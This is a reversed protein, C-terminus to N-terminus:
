RARSAAPTASMWAPTKSRARGTREPSLAVGALVRGFDADAGLVRTLVEGGIQTRGSDDTEAGDFRAQAVEGWAAFRPGARGRQADASDRQLGMGGREWGVHFSSGLLIDRNANSRPAFGSRPASGGAVTLGGVAPGSRPAFNGHATISSDAPGGHATSGHAAGSPAAFLQAIGAVTEALAQGANERDLDLRQGAVTVHAARETGDLRGTVAETVQSGVTRGFRSLWMKQLPDGNSILGHTEGHGAKVYAGRANSFRLLFHESGEDIADDLVPVSVTKQTQGVSFTLTGSTATYDAGATAPSAGQWDGAADATAYNVTVTDTAAYSLRVTFAAAADRGERATAQASTLAPRDLVNIAVNTPHERSHVWVRVEPAVAPLMGTDIEVILVDHASDDDHATAIALTGRTAGAAIPIRGSLTRGSNFRATVPIDVGASLPEDLRATVTASEGENVTEPATLSVIPIPPPAITVRVWWRPGRGVEAPLNASDIAVRFSEYETDSDAVTALAGTGSTQGAAITISALTGYDASTTPPESDPILTLPITVAGPLAASLTATVTVSDGARVPNRPSVSLEVTPTDDDDITVAVSAPSGAAVTSPLNATDLAVTFTEDETDGDQRTAIRGTGATAGAGIRINALTGLDEAEASGRTVTLPVTVAGLLAASLTATITVSQGEAVPNPAASLTVTPTAQTQAQRTVTVTYDKTTGDEATVRVTLANAGVGLAIPASPRGSTVASGQVTVTAKGTDAVTPTLRAHTREHAVTATYSTTGASFTGINLSSYRGGSSTSTSARLGSLNANPSRAQAARRTVTLTYDRTTTTDEATVRVAITNSGVDLAIASSATGDTVPTFSGSTGKRVGVTAKGTDAVTPTVKLHTQANAVSATYSATSASFSSPTLTLASFAATAGTASSATLGSLDANTSATAVTFTASAATGANGNTDYYASSIGVYVTGDALDDTPDITIVTKGANISASYPIATGSANTRTLTLIASLDSHGTFDANANDKRVAETFTLTINTGADTVTDGAGPAFAPASPGTTDTQQPTGTGFVWAGNGDTNKARVRVRYETDNTLGSLTQSATPPDTETGRSAATWGASVGGTQVAADDAVPSAGTKPASTYHVDYGTVTGAPATWTVALTGDGAAIGLGAPAALLRTVTVTYDKTTTGDEATVRVTVANAGVDLAIEASASGSAVPAFRGMGGKRVGVTAKGTDAVTPTLKLHTRGNAVSATYETTAAAFAPPTLGLTSFPGSASTASSASLGSLRADTSRSSGSPPTGSVTVWESPLQHTADDPNTSLARVRLQYTTGDAVTHDPRGGGIAYTGTFEYSTATAALPSPTATATNWDSSEVDPPTAGAYWDVEYGTAPFSGWYAPATWSLTLKAAGAAVKVYRPPAPIAQGGRTVTVTYTRSGVGDQATVAILIQNAGDALAIAGSPSGSAVPTLSRRGGVVKGVQLTAGAHNATGTLRVHTHGASAQVATQYHQATASFEPDIGIPSFTVGDTSVEVTLARLTSDSSQAQAPGAALLGLAGMLAALAPLLRSFRTRLRRVVETM